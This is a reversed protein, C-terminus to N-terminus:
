FLPGQSLPLSPFSASSLSSDSSSVSCLSLFLVPSLVVLTPLGRPPMFTAALIPSPSRLSIPLPLRGLTPSFSCAATRCQADVANHRLEAGSRGPCGYLVRYDVGLARDAGRLIEESLRRPDRSCSLARGAPGPRVDALSQTWLIPEASARAVAGPAPHTTLEHSLETAGDRHGM